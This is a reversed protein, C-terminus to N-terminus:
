QHDSPEGEVSGLALNMQLLWNPLQFGNRYIYFWLFMNCFPHYCNLKFISFYFPSSFFSITMSVELQNAEDIVDVIDQYRVKVNNESVAIISARFWCGRIGSDQSLVEVACGVSLLFLPNKKTLKKSQDADSGENLNCVEGACNLQLLRQKKRPRIVMADQDAKQKMEESPECPRPKPPLLPFLNELLQQNWYGKVRTIDFPKIEGDDFLEHCVFPELQSSGVENMYKEFHYPSLVTAMGDICEINLDQLCLSFFIERDCSTRSLVLGIEDVEHFWRVVVM